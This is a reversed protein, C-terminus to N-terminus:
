NCADNRGLGNSHCGSPCSVIQPTTGSCRHLAGGSCTWYQVGGYSSNACTWGSTNSICYDDHGAGSSFCGASCTDRQPTTGTCRYRNGGSCTWYQVGGYSSSACNWMIATTECRTGTWGSACTCTGGLCTGHGSCTNGACPDPAITCSVGSWGGSCICAGGSCTGHGNCSVGACPDPAITCYTGSWGGSCTCRGASCTGHGNCSIGACPDPAITCSAGSWGGTCTCRGASCTGHGNCTIGACPDTMPPATCYPGGWGGSCTCLGGSCTGHGNCSVTACPDTPSPHCSPFGVYGDACRECNAGAYGTSCVCVGTVCTGNGM